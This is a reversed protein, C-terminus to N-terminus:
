FHDLLRRGSVTRCTNLTTKEKEIVSPILESLHGHSTLRHGYKELFSRIHDIKSLPIGASLFSEVLDFRFVRMDDPLTEGKTNSNEDNRRLFTLLSSDRKKSNQIIKKAENHKATGIHKRVSSKKKSITEKCADCRLM